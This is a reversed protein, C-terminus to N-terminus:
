DGLYEFYELRKAGYAGNWSYCQPQYGKVRMEGPCHPCPNTTKAPCENYGDIRVVDEVRPVPYDPNLHM